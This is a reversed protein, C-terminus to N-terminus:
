QLRQAHFAVGQAHNGASMAIVGRKCQGKTLTLLKTLAGRSKFSATQQLNELKLYINTGGSSMEGKSTGKTKELWTARVTPTRLLIGRMEEAAKQIQLLNMSIYVM